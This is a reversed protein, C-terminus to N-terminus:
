EGVGMQRLEDAYEKVVLKSFDDNQNRISDAFETLVDEITRPKYHKCGKSYYCDDEADVLMLQGKGDPLESTFGEVVFVHVFTINSKKKDYGADCLMDGVHIPVGDADVPLEMYKESIEREIEDALAYLQSETNFSLTGNKIRWRLKDLSEM